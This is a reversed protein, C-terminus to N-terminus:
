STTTRSEDSREKGSSSAQAARLYALSSRALMPAAHSQRPLELSALGQYGVAALASLAAPFDVEGRGLELHEHVGRVMDDVQVNALLPGALGVTAALDRPENCVIHGLDLTLRLTEPEGLRRRVELVDDVTSVLMGPEPEMALTVQREQAYDVLHEVGQSLREWGVTAPDGDPLTGSWFSVAEAGLDAGIDVARNLLETRRSRDGASVLTPHHKRWPDLLYRAGTEIVVALGLRDLQRHLRHTRVVVDAAFPDHHMHDITLAVGDYGLDAIVALADDLRHGQFGNTGYGFRLSM